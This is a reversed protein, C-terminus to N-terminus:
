IQWYELVYGLVVILLGVKRQGNNNKKILTNIKKVKKRQRECENKTKM